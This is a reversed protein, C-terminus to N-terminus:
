RILFVSGTCLKNAQEWEIVSYVERRRAIEMAKLMSIARNYIRVAFILLTGEMGSRANRMRM